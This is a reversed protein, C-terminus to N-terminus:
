MPTPAGVDAVGSIEVAGNVNDDVWCLVGPPGQGKGAYTARPEALYYIAVDGSALKVPVRLKSM